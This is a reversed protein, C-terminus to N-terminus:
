CPGPLEGVIGRKFKLKILHLLGILGVCSGIDSEPLDNVTWIPNIIDDDFPMIRWKTYIYHSLENEGNM